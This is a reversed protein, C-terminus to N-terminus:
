VLAISMLVTFIIFPIVENNAAHQVINSPFFNIITDVISPVERPVYDAPLVLNFGKGIKLFNAVIITIMSAFATNILLWFVSKSGLSKLKKTDNISTISSMISFFL